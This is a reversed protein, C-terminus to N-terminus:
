SGNMVPAPMLGLQELLQLRDFMLDLAVHQGDRIRIRNVYDVAVTRGTPPIEGGPTALDGGHRGSFTGREVVLDELLHVDHVTVGADPFARLWSGYFALCSDRGRGGAGPASWSVDAALVDAFRNLDHANFAATGEDFVDRVTRSM